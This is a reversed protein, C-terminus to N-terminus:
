KTKKGISEVEEQTLFLRPIDYTIAMLLFVVGFFWGFFHGIETYFFWVALSEIVLLLIFAWIPMVRDKKLKKM